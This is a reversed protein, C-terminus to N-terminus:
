IIRTYIQETKYGAVSRLWFKAVPEGQRHIVVADPGDSERIYGTFVMRDGILKVEAGSNLYITFRIEKVTDAKM